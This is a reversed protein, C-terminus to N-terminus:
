ESAGVRYDRIGAVNCSNMVDIVFQWPCRKDARIVVAVRGPNDAQAQKLFDLLEAGSKGQGQVVYRGNAEVNVVLTPVQSTIPQAQSARALAIKQERENRLDNRVIMPVTIMFVILLVLVIDVLPTVNIGTILGEQDDDVFDSSAAM